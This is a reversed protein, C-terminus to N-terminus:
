ATTEDALVTVDVTAIVEYAPFGRATTEQYVISLVRSFNARAVGDVVLTPNSQIVGTITQQRVANNTIGTWEMKKIADEATFVKQVNYPTATGWSTYTIPADNEITFTDAGTVTIRYPGDYHENVHDIQIEDNTSMGHPDATTITATSGSQTINAIDISTGRSSNFFNKMNYILIVEVVFLKRNLRTNQSNYDSRRPRIIIAPMNTEDVTKPDGRFVRKIWSLISWPTNVSEQILTQIAWIIHDM